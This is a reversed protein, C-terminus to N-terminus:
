GFAKDLLGTTFYLLETTQGSKAAHLHYLHTHENLCTHKTGAPNGKANKGSYFLVSLQSQHQLYFHSIFYITLHLLLLHTHTHSLVLPLERLLLQLLTLADDAQLHAGVSPCRLRPHGAVPPRPLDDVLIRSKQGVEGMLSHEGRVGNSGSLRFLVWRVLGPVLPFVRM